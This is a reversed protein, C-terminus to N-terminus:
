KSILGQLDIGLQKLLHLYHIKYEEDTEGRLQKQIAVFPLIAESTRELVGKYARAPEEAAEIKMYIPLAILDFAALTFEACELTSVGEVPYDRDLRKNFKDLLSRDLKLGELVMKISVRNQGGVDALYESGLVEKVADALDSSFKTFLYRRIRQNRDDYMVQHITTLTAFTNTQQSLKSQKRAVLLAFGAVILSGVAIVVAVQDVLWDSPNV